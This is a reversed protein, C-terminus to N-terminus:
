WSLTCSITKSAAPEQFCARAIRGPGDPHPALYAQVLPHDSDATFVVRPYVTRWTHGKDDSVQIWGVCTARKVLFMADASSGRQKRLTTSNVQGWCDNVGLGARYFSDPLAPSAPVGKGAAVTIAPTCRRPTKTTWVCARARSGPGAYTARSVAFDEFRIPAPAVILKVGVQTWTKGGNGSRQLVALCPNPSNQEHVVASIYAPTGASLRATQLQVNCAGSQAMYRGLDFSDWATTTPAASAPVTTALAFVVATAAAAAPGIVRRIDLQKRVYRM